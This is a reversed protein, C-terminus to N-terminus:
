KGGEYYKNFIVIFEKKTARDIWNNLRNIKDSITDSDLDKSKWGRVAMNILQLRYQSKLESVYLNYMTMSWGWIYINFYCTILILSTFFFTCFVLSVQM